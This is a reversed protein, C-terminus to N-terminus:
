VPDVNKYFDIDPELLDQLYRRVSDTVQKNHDLTLARILQRRAFGYLRSERIYAPILTEGKRIWDPPRSTLRRVDSTSHSHVTEDVCIEQFGLFRFCAASLVSQRNKLDETRLVLVNEKSFANIWMPVYKAYQSFAVYGGHARYINHTKDYEYLTSLGSEEVAKHLSRTEVGLKYRWRYHSLLRELPDRLLIIIKPKDLSKQIRDIARQHVFYSQSSEGYTVTDGDVHEFLSNHYKSGKSYLDDFSFFQPEKPHSMTINPHRGLIRHLSSTGSKAAGPVILNCLYDAM